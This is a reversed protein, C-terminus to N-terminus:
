EKIIEREIRVDECANLLQRHFDNVTRKMTEFETYKCHAVEHDLFGNLDLMLEDSLDKTSPLKITKGDTSAGTGEFVVNINYQRAIIRGIKELSTEFIRKM